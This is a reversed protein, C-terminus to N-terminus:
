SWCNPGTVKQKNTATSRQPEMREQQDFANKASGIRKILEVATEKSIFPNLVYIRLATVGDGSPSYFSASTKGIAFGEDGSAWDKQLWDYFDSNYSNTKALATVDGLERKHEEEPSLGAPFCRVYVDSGFSEQNVVYMGTDMSNKNVSDRIFQAMEQAHGLLVQYGQKGLAKVTLWTGVMNAASRSTELSYKGPNYAAQDFFLPTMMQSDRGLDALDQKDRAVIMSSVYPVYGTKHFDLGFSDAHKFSNVLGVTRQLKGLINKSFGLPNKQFDYGSFHLYAWGIVSDSHIHPVYGLNFKRVLGDRMEAIESFDDIAMNATTGGVGVICAIRKGVQIQETCIREMDEIDTTQDASSRAMLYNRRGLGLWNTANQQAYHAPKSGVIVLNNQSGNFFFDPDAKSIGMKFAYLNTGTGGFTFLGGSRTPDYGALESYVKAVKLEANVSNAADEGTVGNPMYISAVTNGAFYTWAPLPIVNKLMYPHSAKVSGELEGALSSIVALPDTSLEDPLQADKVIDEMQLATATRKYTPGQGQHKVALDVAQHLLALLYDKNSGDPALFYRKRLLELGKLYPGESDSCNNSM